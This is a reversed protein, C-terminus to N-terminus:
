AWRDPHWDLGAVTLSVAAMAILVYGIHEM